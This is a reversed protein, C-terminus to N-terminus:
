AGEVRCPVYRHLLTGLPDRHTNKTLSNVNLGHTTDGYVLGFGHPILVTGPRIRVSLELEGVASGAETTVRVEQGDSLGLAKADDPSMAITGARRGRNWEPDRMLTNANCDYHRGASMILPFEKPLELKKKESAPQLSRVEEEMEPIFIEIKGSDTKIQSMNDSPDLEGVWVGSPSDLLAQFVRDGLDMGPKFGARVANERFAKPATMMMGWLAALNASDWVRGLTKALVFPMRKLAAPEKGAYEMLKAGFALREGKAAEVLEDPIEPILGLRDAILTHIQAAELCSGPVPVIPRRLQFHIKPYTYPFFTADYSEYFSRCPLVYHALRATESMVIENVVLLDLAGFAREYAATDPYSRLPNCASVIMARLREDHDGLIEEPVVSPPFSGAAVPPMGTAVTRWTKPDREDAHFGLPMVFGPIINGGPVCYIGCAAGLIHLLYSSLTSTRGMFVGLDPHVSWRRTAMLECLGRVKEPELGCVSLAGEVDFGDFWLRVREWGEVHREIYDRNEKKENLIIAIMAKMLLADTGPRLPLHMNAIAATESERPDIVVLLRKPDESIAKLELPARPMQHSQMGNWGWAVLMETAHEDPGTINYQKGFVRGQVWWQGSFEQGSSSYYYRSGLGRLVGLGFAAEFHGGQTSGGMYAFSRPGHEAVVRGLRDAIEGIARDWGVPEFGSGKRKLPETIRDKPYQHHVVNVGKRCLYGRSKLNERDGKVKVMRGNEVLVELGCNQSCLVCGTKKWEGM